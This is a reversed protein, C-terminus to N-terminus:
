RPPDPPPPRDNGGGRGPRSVGGECRAATVGVPYRRSRSAGGSHRPGPQAGPRVSPRPASRPEARGAPGRIAPWAMPPSAGTPSARIPTGVPIMCARAPRVADAGVDLGSERNAEAAGDQGGVPHLPIAVWPCGAAQGPREECTMDPSASGPSRRTGQDGPISASRRPVGSRRDNRRSDCGDAPWPGPMPRPFRHRRTQAIASGGSMTHCGRSQRTTRWTMPSGLAGSRHGPRSSRTRFPVISSSRGSRSRM